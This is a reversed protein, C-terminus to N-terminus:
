STIAMARRYYYSFTLRVQFDPERVNLLSDASELNSSVIVNQVMARAVPESYSYTVAFYQRRSEVIAGQKARNAFM